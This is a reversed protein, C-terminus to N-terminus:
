GGAVVPILTMQDGEKLYTDVGDLNRIDQGNVYVTIFPRPNGSEEGFFRKSFNEGFRNVLEKLAERVSTAEVLVEKRTDSSVIGFLKVVM